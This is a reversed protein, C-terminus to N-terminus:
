VIDDCIYQAFAIQQLKDSAQPRDVPNLCVYASLLSPFAAACSKDQKACRAKEVSIAQCYSM